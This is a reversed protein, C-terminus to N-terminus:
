IQNIKDKAMENTQDVELVKFYYKKANENDWIDEFLSATALLYDVNQPRLKIANEMYWIADKINELSYMIEAMTVYYKPNDNKLFLAKNVLLKATELDERELYIQWVQWISKHDNSEKELIKKLLPLAKKHNGVSFYYDALLRIVWYNEKDYSLAEVLKQEYKDLEWKEKLAIAQYKLREIKKNTLEKNETKNNTKKSEEVQKNETELNKEKNKNEKSDKEIIDNRINELNRKHERKNYINKFIWFFNWFYKKLLFIVPILIVILTLLLWIKIEWALMLYNEYNLIM